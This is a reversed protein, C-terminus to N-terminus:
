ERKIRIRVGLIIVDRNFLMAAIGILLICTSVAVVTSVVIYITNGTIASIVYVSPLLSVILGSAISTIIDARIGTFTFAFAMGIYILPLPAIIVGAVREDPSISGAIIGLAGTSILGLTISLVMSIPILSILDVGLQNSLVDLLEIISDTLDIGGESPISGMSMGFIGVLYIVAFLLSTISAAIIKALVIYSRKVPQALLMEFAKEVKDFATLQAASSANLGIVIGMFLPLMLILSSLALLADLGLERGYFWVNSETRVNFMIQYNIPVGYVQNIAIPLLKSILDSVQFILSQLGSLIDISPNEVKVISNLVITGNGSIASHTFGHPIIIVLNVDRLAEESSGYVITQNNTVHKLLEVLTRTLNTNEELVIGIKGTIIQETGERGIRMLSGLATYFVLLIALSAIFVPNKLFAFLERKILQGLAM